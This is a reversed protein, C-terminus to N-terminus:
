FYDSMKINDYQWYLQNLLNFHTKHRVADTQSALGFLEPKLTMLVNIFFLLGGGLYGLAYGFASDRHRTNAPSVLLLLADYIVNAGSFGIIGLIYLFVALQWMGQSVFFL